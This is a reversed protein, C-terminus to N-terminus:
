ALKPDRSFKLCTLSHIVILESGGVYIKVSASFIRCIGLVNCHTESGKLVSVHMFM